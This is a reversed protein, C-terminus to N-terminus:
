ARAEETIPLRLTNSTRGEHELHLQDATEVLLHRERVTVIARLADDYTPAETVATIIEDASNM